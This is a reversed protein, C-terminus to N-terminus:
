LFSNCSRLISSKLDLGGSQAQELEENMYLGASWTIGPSRSMIILVERRSTNSLPGLITLRYGDVPFHNHIGDLIISSLPGLPQLTPPRQYLNSNIFETPRHTSARCWDKYFWINYSLCTITEASLARFYQNQTYILNRVCPITLESLLGVYVGVVSAFSPFRSM